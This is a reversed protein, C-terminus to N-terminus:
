VIHLKIPVSQNVSDDANAFLQRELCGIQRDRGVFGIALNGYRSALHVRLLNDDNLSTRVQGFDTLSMRFRFQLSALPVQHHVYSDHFKLISHAQQNFRDIIQDILATSVVCLEYQDAVSALNRLQLRHHALRPEATKNLKRPYEPM